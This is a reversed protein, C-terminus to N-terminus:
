SKKLFKKDAIQNPDGKASDKEASKGKTLVWMVNEQATGIM